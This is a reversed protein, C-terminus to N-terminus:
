TPLDMTMLLRSVPQGNQIHHHIIDDIDKTTEVRYWTGEPYIVLTPGLKCRGLCGSGSVRIKGPGYLNLQKLQDKAYSRLERPHGDACCKKGLDKQNECFFLHKEYYMSFNYRNKAFFAKLKLENHYRQATIKSTLKHKPSGVIAAFFDAVALLAVRFTTTRRLAVVALTASLFAAGALFAFAAGFFNLATELAKLLVSSKVM